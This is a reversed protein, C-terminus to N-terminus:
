YMFGSRTRLLRLDCVIYLSTYLWYSRTQAHTQAHTRAQRRARRRADTRTIRTGAPVAAHQILLVWQPPCIHKKAQKIVYRDFLYKSLGYVNLPKYKETESDNFGRTGDGYTAASSAYILRVKNKTCWKWINRSFRTNINYMLRFNSETTSSNAGMHIIIDINNRSLGLSFGGAGSFLDIGILKKM